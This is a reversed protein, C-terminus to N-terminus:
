TLELLRERVENIKLKSISAQKEYNKFYVLYTENQPTIHSIKKLNIIFGRHSPFFTDDLRELIRGITENTEFIENKSYVMCKKGIKEIFYIDQFPIYRICNQDRLPLKKTNQNKLDIANHMKEFNILQTAKQLAKYFRNKEVPKVIYDVANLQFAELAYEDYGTIFIFKISPFFSLCDKIADVGNKIPMNIDTLVLDPKKFMVEEVLQDGNMCIGVLQYGPLDDLFYQIIELSDQNDDILLIKIPNM